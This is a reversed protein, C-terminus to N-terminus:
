FCLRVCIVVRGLMFRVFIGKVGKLVVVWSSYWFGYIVLCWVVSFLKKRFFGFVMWGMICWIVVWVLLQLVMFLKLVWYWRVLRCWWVLFRSLFLLRISIGVVVVKGVMVLMLVLGMICLVCSFWQVLKMLKIFMDVRVMGVMYCCLLRGVLMVRILGVLVLWRSVLVLVCRCCCSFLVVCVLVIVVVGSGKLLFVMLIQMILVCRVLWGRFQCNSFVLVCWMVM